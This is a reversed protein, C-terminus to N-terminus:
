EWNRLSNMVFRIWFVIGLVTRKSCTPGFATVKLKSAYLRAPSFYSDGFNHKPVMLCCLGMGCRTPRVTVSALTGNLFWSRNSSEHM